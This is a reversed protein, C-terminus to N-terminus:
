LLDVKGIPLNEGALYLYSALWLSGRIRTYM